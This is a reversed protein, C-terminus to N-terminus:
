KSSRKGLARPPDLFCFGWDQVGVSRHHLNHLRIRSELSEITYIISDLSSGHKPDEWPEPYKCVGPAAAPAATSDAPPRGPGEMQQQAFWM